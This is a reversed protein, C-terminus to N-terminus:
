RVKTYTMDFDVDWRGGEQKEWRGSISRGDESLVGTFRQPFPQDGDRWLKWKGGAFSM